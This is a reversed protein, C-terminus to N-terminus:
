QFFSPEDFPDTQRTHHIQIIHVRSISKGLVM